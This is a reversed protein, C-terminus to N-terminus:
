NYPCVADEVEVTNYKIGRYSKQVSTLTIKGNLLDNLMEEAEKCYGRNRNFKEEGETSNARMIKDIKCVVMKECILKLYILDDSDTFPLTYKKKLTLNIKISSEDIFRQIDTEIIYDSNVGLGMYYARIYTTATYKAM